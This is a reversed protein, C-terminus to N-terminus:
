NIYEFTRRWFKERQFNKRFCKMQVYVAFIRFNIKAALFSVISQSAWNRSVGRFTGHAHAPKGSKEFHLTGFVPSFKGFSL